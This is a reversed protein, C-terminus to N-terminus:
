IEDKIKLAKEVQGKDLEKNGYRVKNYYSTLIGFGNDKYHEEKTINILYENPTYHKQYNYGKNKLKRISKIYARRIDHLGELVFSEKNFMNSFTRRMGKLLSGSPRVFSKEDGELSREKNTYFLERFNKYLVYAVVAFLLAFLIWKLVDIIQVILDGYKDPGLDVLLNSIEEQSKESIGDGKGMVPDASKILGNVFASIRAGIWALPYLIIDLAREVISWVNSLIPSYDALTFVLSIGVITTSIVNFRTMNREKDIVNAHYKSYADIMSIRALYLITVVFYIPVYVKFVKVYWGTVPMVIMFLAIAGIIIVSLFVTGKVTRIDEDEIKSDMGRKWLFMYTILVAIKINTTRLNMLYLVSILCAILTLVPFIYKLKSKENSKSAISSSIIYSLMYNGVGILLIGSFSVSDLHSASLYALITVTLITYRLTESLAKLLFGSINNITNIM